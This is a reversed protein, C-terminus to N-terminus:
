MGGSADPRMKAARSGRQVRGSEATRHGTPKAVLTRDLTRDSSSVGILRAEQNSHGTAEALTRDM